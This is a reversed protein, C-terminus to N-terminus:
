GPASIAAAVERATEEPAQLAVWRRERLDSPLSAAASPDVVLILRKNGGLAVGVDFYLNPSEAHVGSILAVIADSGRLATKIADEWDEGPEIDWEDLWVNVGRDRLARAFADLWGREPDLNSHSIFVKTSM